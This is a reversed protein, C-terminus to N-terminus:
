PLRNRLAVTTAFSRRLHGDTAVRPTGDCDVWAGLTATAAADVVRAASRVQLCLSVSVVRSWDPSGAAPAPGYYAVQGFAPASAAPAAAAFGYSVRLVEVGQALPAGARNGPGHCLLRGDQVYFKSDDLWYDGLAADRTKPYTNGLCDLPEGATGTVADAAGAAAVGAEFAVELADSGAPAAGPPACAPGDAIATGLDAFGAGRCGFVAPFAPLAFSTGGGAPAALGRPAARGAQAVHQRLVELALSADDAMQTLAEAHRSDRVTAVVGALVAAAVALGIAM